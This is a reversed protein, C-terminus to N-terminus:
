TRSPAPRTGVPKSKRSTKPTRSAKLADEAERVFRLYLGDLEFPHAAAQCQRALKLVEKWAERAHASMMSDHLQALDRFVPSNLTEKDGVVTFIKGQETKGKVRVSGVPLIALHDRAQIATEEGVLIRVGFSKTQGEFRSALNVADGLVTYDFRLDSGMNGVVCEGTNIGIGIELLEEGMAERQENLDKLRRSMELAASCANVAHDEDPLPANWFAMINDGMYKDITGGNNVVARSLPTLLSNILLTLARPNSKYTESITTFGRVDSFLISMERTEGGLTLRDPNDALQEVMDESLYQGFATRIQRKDMEERFYGLVILLLTVSGSTLLPFAYDFVMGHRNFLYWSAGATGFAIAAGTIVTILAGVKPLLLVLALGIVLALSTELGVAWAPRQLLNQGLIANILQAHAEVGPMSSDVPTAKLDFLGTSSTGIMVIRNAFTGPKVRDKLVDAASVFIGPDHKRFHLWAKANRDTPISVGAIVVAEVGAEASKILVTSQGTAVRLTELGLSPMLKDGFRTILPLKRVVGDREPRITVIGLGQAAAELVDVNGVIQPFSDIYRSPDPGLVAVPPAKLGANDRKAIREHYGSQGLVVRTKRMADVMVEENSALERLKAATLGDYAEVIDAIAQPSTRDPEPFLVDFTIVAAGAQSLKDILTALTTRSWPWQGLEALSKEDIDVVLVQNTSDPPDGLLQYLDFTKLRVIELPAPDYVRTAMMFFLLCLALVRSAM